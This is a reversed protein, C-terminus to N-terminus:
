EHLREELRDIKSFISGRQNQCTAQNAELASLRERIKVIDDYSVIEGSKKKERDQYKNWLFWLIFPLALGNSVAWDWIKLLLGDM